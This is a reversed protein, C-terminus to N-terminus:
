NGTLRMSTSLIPFAWGSDSKQDPQNLSGYFQASTCHLPEDVQFTNMLSQKCVHEECTFATEAVAFIARYWTSTTKLLLIDFSYEFNGTIYLIEITLFDFLLVLYSTWLFFGSMFLNFCSITLKLGYTFTRKIVWFYGQILSLYHYLHIPPHTLHTSTYPHTASRHMCVCALCALKLQLTTEWHTPLHTSPLNYIKM